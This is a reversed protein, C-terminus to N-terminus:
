LIQKDVADLEVNNMYTSGKEYRKEVVQTNRMAEIM